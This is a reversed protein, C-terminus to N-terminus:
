KKNLIRITSKDKLLIASLINHKTASLRVVLFAVKTEEKFQVVVDVNEILDGDNKKYKRSHGSFLLKAEEKYEYHGTSKSKDIKMDQNIELEASDGEDDEEGAKVPPLKSGAGFDFISKGANSFLSGADKPITNKAFLSPQAQFGNGNFLNPSNINIKTEPNASTKSGFLGTNNFLGV